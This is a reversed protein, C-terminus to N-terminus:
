EENPGLESRPDAPPEGVRRRLRLKARVQQVQEIAERVESLWEGHALAFARVTYALAASRTDAVGAAVLTDLVDRENRNLRTMVPVSRTTFLEEIGDCRIGWAVPRQVFGQIERALQMRLPRTEERLRAIREQPTAQTDGRAGGGAAVQLTIVLEDDYRTIQPPAGSLEAPLRSLLWSQLDAENM